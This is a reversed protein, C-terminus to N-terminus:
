VSAGTTQLREVQSAAEHHEGASTTRAPVSRASTSVASAAAPQKKLALAVLWGLAATVLSVLSFGVAAYFGSQRVTEVQGLAAGYLYQLAGERAGVGGPLPLVSAALEAVPVILLHTGFGPAADALGLGNACSFYALVNLAHVALGLLVAVLLVRRRRQYLGVGNMLKLLITAARGALGQDPVAGIWRLGTNLVRELIRLPVPHLMAAIGLTGAVAGGALLLMATVLQPQNWLDPHAVAALTGLLLLALLGLVRDLVVTATVVARADPNERAILVAKTLDGGVTGPVVINFLNGIFGLRVADRVPFEINQARVLLWWRVSGMVITAARATLALLVWSWLLPRSLLRDFGDAHQSFMWAVIGLAAPWRLWLILRRIM